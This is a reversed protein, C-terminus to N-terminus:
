LSDDGKRETPLVGEQETPIHKERSDQEIRAAEVLEEKGLMSAGTKYWVLEWDSLGKIGCVLDMAQEVIEQALEGDGLERVIQAKLVLAPMRHDLILARDINDLAEEYEKHKHQALALNFLPGIWSTVKAAERYYKQQGQYDNRRGSLIGMKNLLYADAEGKNRLVAALLEIARDLQGLEDNLNAAEELKKLLKHQSLRGRRIEEEILHLRERKVQPNVVNSLPNERSIETHDPWVDKQLSAELQFVQNSNYRYKLYIPQGQKVPGTVTWIWSILKRHQTGDGAVVEFRIDLNGDAVTRPVSLKDIYGWGEKPYPLEVDEELLKINGDDTRIYVPDHNRIQVLGRGFLERSLAHYAAGKTIEIQKAEGVPFQLIQADWFFDEVAAVVQPIQSSGGVLLCYDIDESRLGCRDMADTIPAFISCTMYYETERAYLLLDDLFPEMIQEFQAATLEPSQLVLKRKPLQCVYSGSMVTKISEKDEDSYRDFQIRRRIESCIKIKLAEAANLVAPEIYRKKETFSLNFPDLNNQKELQPILIDYIISRDIDGGGLRHYRSVQRLDVSIGSDTTYRVSLIAIDCTGGGFDFVLYNGTPNAAILEEDAYDVLYTIFAAVPEDLLDGDAIELGALHGAKITDDRQPLQFSAPVTLAIRDVIDPNEEISAEYLFRLIHGGIEAASRYGEPAAPYTKSIGIENKNEFFLNKGEKLGGMNEASRLQKAGEGVICRDGALAVVSPVLRDTYTGAQTYQDIELCNATIENHAKPDWCIETVCSNTTGLDIGLVKINREPLEGKDTQGVLRFLRHM